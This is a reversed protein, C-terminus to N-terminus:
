RVESVTFMDIVKAGVVLMPIGDAGIAVRDVRGTVEAGMNERDDYAAKVRPDSNVTLHQQSPLQAFSTGYLERAVTDQTVGVADVQRGIVSRGIMATASTLEQVGQLVKMGDAMSRMQNLSEFQAMQAMFDTDSQPELPNQNRMQAIILKM